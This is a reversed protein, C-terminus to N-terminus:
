KDDGRLIEMGVTYNERILKFLFTKAHESDMTQLKEAARESAGSFYKERAMEELFMHVEPNSSWTYAEGFNKELATRVENLDNLLFRKDGLLEIKFAEDICNKDNLQEFVLSKSNLYQSAFEIETANSTEKMVVAFARRATAREESEIMLFIPTRNKRSWAQPSESMTLKKWLRKLESNLRKNKVDDALITLRREFEQRGYIFSDTPLGAIVAKKDSASLEAFQESFRQTLIRTEENLITRIQEASETLTSLFNERRDESIEGRKVIVRLTEFLKSLTPFQEILIESPVRVFKMRDIWSEICESFTRSEIGVVRSAAMIKHELLLNDIVGNAESKSWLAAGTLRKQVEDVVNTVSAFEFLNGGSYELLYNKLTTSTDKGILLAKLRRIHFSGTLLFNGMQEVMGSVFDGDQSNVLQILQLCFPKYQETAVQESLWLIRQTENLRERIKNAVQEISMDEITGFVEHSFKLFEHQGKSMIEMFVERHNKKPALIYNMCEAVFTALREAASGGVYRYREKAYEKLLFGALLAYINCPMFGNAMLLEFIEDFSVRQNKALQGAIFKDVLIKLKSIPLTPQLEWYLSERRWVEGLIKQVAAQGYLGYTEETIGLQAGKRFSNANTLFLSEAVDVNDFTLPYLEIINKDLETKLGKLRACTIARRETQMKSLAPHIVFTGDSFERRWEQLVEEANSQNQESLHVDRTRWYEAHSMYDAWRNLREVGFYNEGADVFIVSRYQEADSIDRIRSALKQRENEDRAFCVLMGVQYIKLERILKTAKASLNELTAVEIKLRTRQSASLIFEEGFRNEEVLTSLRFNKLVTERQADIESQDGSIAATAFIEETGAQRYLIKKKVLDRAINLAVGGDLEDVGEFTLELNTASPQLLKVRELQSKRTVAEMMLITKLVIKESPSLAFIETYRSFSDLITAIVLDLNTRGRGTVHEDTGQEYFFKWLYDTTLLDGVQPSRTSIFQQFGEADSSDTKIFNFMSRQNSAFYTSINKLMLAAMPHIPLIGSLIKESAKVYEAVARRSNRTRDKLASSILQWDREAAPKIKLAHWILEFAINNPMTINQGIFRDRLKKFSDDNGASVHTAIVFYFPKINVLEVLKQFDGLNSRNGNFFDTFEDWFFVIAKLKNADIVETIWSKLDDIGIEFARIGEREGLNLIEDVLEDIPLESNKLRDLIEDATKGAFAGIGRYKPNQIKARFLQLNAEDSELWSVIKGRLTKTGNFKYGSKKLSATLSDFVAHILNRTSLIEGSSYRSATVIKGLKLALLKERLDVKDRLGENANFYAILDAPPCDLLNRLTWLLRSKGTGYSGEVWLSKKDTNSARSLIKELSEITAIVSEHAYTQEWRNKPDQISDENIEPYYGADVEFYINYKNWSIEM